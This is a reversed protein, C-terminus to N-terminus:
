RRARRRPTLCFPPRIHTFLAFGPGGGDLGLGIQGNEDTMIRAVGFLARRNLPSRLARLLQKHESEQLRKKENEEPTM